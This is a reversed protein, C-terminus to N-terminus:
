PNGYRLLWETLVAGRLQARIEYRYGIMQNDVMRHWTPTDVANTMVWQGQESKEWEILPISAYIDPDEVDGVSFRHVVVTKAHEV